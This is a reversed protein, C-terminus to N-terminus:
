IAFGDQDGGMTNGPLGMIKLCYGRPDGTVKAKLGYPKLIELAKALIRHEQAEAKERDEMFELGNCLREANRHASRGLRQLAMADRARAGGMLGTTEQITPSNPTMNVARAALFAALTTVNQIDRKSM